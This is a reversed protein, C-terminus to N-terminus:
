IYKNMYEYHVVGATMVCLANDIFRELNKEYVPRKVLAVTHIVLYVLVVSRIFSDKFVIAAM